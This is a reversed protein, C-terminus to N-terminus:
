TTLNKNKLWQFFEDKDYKNNKINNEQQTVPRLNDLCNIIKIDYIGNEIFASIPFYHDLHWRQHRNELWNKTKLENWNPHKEIHEQLDKPSYGLLDRTHGDKKKGLMALTHQLMGYCKKKFKNRLALAERDEITLAKSIKKYGCEKCHTKQYKMSALICFSIKGCKCKYKLKEKPYKYETSLLECGNDLFIQRVEELSTKVGRKCQSCRKGSKFHDWRTKSVNGCSCKYSMPTQCGKYDELLECGQEIFYNSVYEHTLKLRNAFGKKEGTAKYQCEKCKSGRQISKMSLECEKGCICKCLMRTRKDTWENALLVYGKSDFIQKVKEINYKKM